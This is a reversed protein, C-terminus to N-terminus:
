QKTVMDMEMDTATAMMKVKKKMTAIAIVTDKLSEPMHLNMSFTELITEPLLIRNNM